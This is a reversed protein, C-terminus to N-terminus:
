GNFAGSNLREGRNGGTKAGSRRGTIPAGNNMTELGASTMAWHVAPITPLKGASLARGASFSSSHSCSIV